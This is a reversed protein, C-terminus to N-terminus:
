IRTEKNGIEYCDKWVHVGQGALATRGQEIVINIINIIFNM